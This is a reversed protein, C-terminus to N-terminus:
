RRSGVLLELATCAEDLSGGAAPKWYVGTVLTPGNSAPRQLGIAARLRRPQEASWLLIRDPLLMFRGGEVVSWARARRELSEVAEPSLVCRVRQGEWSSAWREAGSVVAEPQREV